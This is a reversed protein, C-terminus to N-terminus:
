EFKLTADRDRVIEVSMGHFGEREFVTIGDKFVRGSLDGLDDRGCKALDYAMLVPLKIKRPATGHQQFFTAEEDIIRHLVDRGNAMSIVGSPGRVFYVEAVDMGGFSDGRFAFPITPPRGKYLELASRVLPDSRGILRVLFPEFEADNLDDTIRVIERYAADLSGEEIANTAIYFVWGADEHAKLWFALIVPISKEFERLFRSGAQIRRDVLTGQDM